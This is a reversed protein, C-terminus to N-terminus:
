ARCKEISGEKLTEIMKMFNYKIGTEEAKESNPHEPWGIMHGSHDPTVMNHKLNIFTNKYQRRGM